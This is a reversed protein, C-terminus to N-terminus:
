PTPKTMVALLKDAAADISERHSLLKGSDRDILTGLFFDSKRDWTVGAATIREIATKPNVGAEKADHLAVALARWLGSSSLLTEQRLKRVFAGSHNVRDRQLRDLGGLNTAILTFAERLEGRPDREKVLNRVDEEVQRKSRTKKGLLSSAVIFRLQAFALLKDSRAGVSGNNLDIRDHFLKLDSIVRRTIESLVTDDTLALVTTSLPKQLNLTHFDTKQRALDPEEIVIVPISAQEIRRRARDSMQPQKVGKLKALGAAVAWACIRHLGEGISMAERARAEGAMDFGYSTGEFELPTTSYLVVANFTFPKGTEAQEVIYDVIAQVHQPNTKRQVPGNTRAMKLVEPALGASAVPEVFGKDIVDFVPITGIYRIRDEDQQKIAKFTLLGKAASGEFSEVATM